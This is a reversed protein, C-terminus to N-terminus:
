RNIQEDVYGKTSHWEGSRGASGIAKNFKNEAENEKETQNNNNNNRKGSNMKDDLEVGLINVSKMAQIDYENIKMNQDLLSKNRNLFMLQFKNPNAKM